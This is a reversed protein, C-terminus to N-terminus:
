GGALRSMSLSGFSMGNCAIRGLTATLRNSTVTVNVLAYSLVGTGPGPQTACPPMPDVYLTIGLGGVSVPVGQAMGSLTDGNEFTASWTGRVSGGQEALSLRVTGEGSVPDSIAGSWNGVPSTTPAPPTTPSVPMSDGGCGTACVLVVVAWAFRVSM